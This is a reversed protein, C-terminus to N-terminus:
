VLGLVSWHSTASFYNMPGPYFEFDVLICDMFASSSGSFGRSVDFMKEDRINQHTPM